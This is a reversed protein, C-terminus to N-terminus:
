ASKNERLGNECLINKNFYKKIDFGTKYLIFLLLYINVRKM